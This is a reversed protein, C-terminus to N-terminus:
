GPPALESGDGQYYGEVLETKFSAVKFKGFARIFRIVAAKAEEAAMDPKMANISDILESFAGANTFQLEKGDDSTEAFDAEVPVPQTGASTKLLVVWSTM